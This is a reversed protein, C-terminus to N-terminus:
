IIDFNLPLTDIKSIFYNVKKGWTSSPPAYRRAIQPITPAGKDIYKNKLTSSVTSISDPWSTFNYNGNVWGYANYSGKPIFKGFTSEVGSIAPLLRYDLGNADAYSVFDGAYPTLPSNFKEFFNRLNEVRYDFGFTQSGTRISASPDSITEARSVCASLQFLMTFVLIVIILKKMSMKLFFARRYISPGFIFELAPTM